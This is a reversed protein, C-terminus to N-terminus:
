MIIIQTYVQTHELRLIDMRYKLKPKLLKQNPVSSNYIFLTERYLSVKIYIFTIAMAEVYIDSVIFAHNLFM